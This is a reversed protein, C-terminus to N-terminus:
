KWQDSTMLFDQFRFSIELPLRACWSTSSRQRALSRTKIAIGTVLQLLRSVPELDHVGIKYVVAYHPLAQGAIVILGRTIFLHPSLATSELYVLGCQNFVAQQGQIHGRGFVYECVVWM